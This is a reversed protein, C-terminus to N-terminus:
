RCTETNTETFVPQTGVNLQCCFNVLRFARIILLVLAYKESNARVKLAGLLRHHMLFLDRHFIRLVQDDPHACKAQHCNDCGRRCSIGVGLTPSHNTSLRGYRCRVGFREMYVLRRVLGDDVPLTKVNSFVLGRAEELGASIGDYQVSHNAALVWGSDQARELCVSLDDDDVRIAYRKPRLARISTPPNIAVVLSILFLSKMAPRM